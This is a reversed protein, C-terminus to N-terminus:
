RGARLTQLTGDEGFEGHLAIFFADITDDDLIQLSDPTTDWALAEWGAAKLAELVCAGSQLSVERERGIGGMLVAVKPTLKAM